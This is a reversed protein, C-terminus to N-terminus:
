ALGGVAGGRVEGTDERPTRALRGLV